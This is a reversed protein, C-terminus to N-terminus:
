REAGKRQPARASLGHLAITTMADQLQKMPISEHETWWSLIQTAMGVMAQAAVAAPVRTFAGTAMGERINEEIDAAFLDQARRIVDHYAAAHGFVIRFVERNQQAFRCFATNASRLRAVPETEKLRAHDIAAKLRGVTDEVLADFLADKTEFHLYFTGVGVDAASAIDAIKTDHFGKKALVGVAAALLEQRTREKRREFRNAEPEVRLSAAKM